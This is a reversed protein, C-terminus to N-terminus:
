CPLVTSSSGRAGPYHDYHPKRRDFLPNPRRIRRRLYDNRVFKVLLRNCFHCHATDHAAIEPPVTLVSALLDDPPCPPSGQHTMKNKKAMYGRQRAAHKKRGKLSSQYRQAAQKKSHSRAFKACGDACYRNGHDCASCILVEKGCRACRYRRGPTDM